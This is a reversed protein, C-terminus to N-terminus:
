MDIKDALFTMHVNKQSSEAWGEGGGVGGRRGGRGEAWGEKSVDRVKKSEVSAGSANNIKCAKLDLTTYLLIFTGKRYPWSRIILM